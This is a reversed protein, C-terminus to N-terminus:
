ARGLERALRAAHVDSVRRRKAAAAPWIAILGGAVGIAGGIWLWMVLPNYNVRFDVPAGAELYADTLRRIVLGQLNAMLQTAAAPNPATEDIRKGVQAIRRDATEIDEDFEALDPRMATWFDGGASGKRGVESTAEGEFFGRVGDGAASSYYNRSPQLVAFEEGDRRVDLTAGFTLRQEDPDVFASPKVYTVEFDGVDASDGPQLRVDSSTQFSSSAAVAIFLIAIGAHVLYGGWRRRNRAVVRVAAAGFSGGALARQAGATRILESTLAALSFSAFCFLVLAAPESDADTFAALAGTVLLAVVGPPWLLRWARGASVRRWALLPGIGTFLVLLIALPTTVANFFPPGVSREDGTLAESILPFFTGWFIVFALGCLVLNNLLFVSERSWLSDLRHESRLQPARTAVLYVSGAIMTAILLLF